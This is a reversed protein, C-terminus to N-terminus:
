GKPKLAKTPLLSFRVAREKLTEASAVGLAGREKKKLVVIYSDKVYSHKMKTKADYTTVIEQTSYDQAFLTNTFLGLLVIIYIFSRRYHNV